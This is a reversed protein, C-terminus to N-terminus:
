NCMGKEKYSVCVGRGIIIFDTIRVGVVESASKLREFVKDDEKSPTPDGSPHNHVLVINTAGILLSKMFVDRSSVIASDVTGHAIEFLGIMRGKNNMCILYAYEEAMRDLRFLDNMMEVVVDPSDVVTEKYEYEKEKVVVTKFSNEVETNYKVIM